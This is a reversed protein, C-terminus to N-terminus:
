NRIASISGTIPTPVVAVARGGGFFAGRSAGHEFPEGRRSEADDVGGREVALGLPHDAFQQGLDAVAPLSEEGGLDVACPRYGRPLRPWCPLTWAAAQLVENM